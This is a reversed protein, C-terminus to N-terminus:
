WSFDNFKYLAFSQAYAGKLNVNTCLSCTSQVIPIYWCNENNIENLQQYLSYREGTDVSTRAKLLLEDVAPDNVNAINNNFGVSKSNFFGWVIADADAYTGGRWGVCIEYDLNNYVEEVFNAREMIQVEANIGIKRLQEQIVQASLSYENANICKITINMGTSGSDELLKKAKEVDYQNAKFGPDFGFYPSPIMSERTWGVGDFAGYLLEEKNIAYSVAQRVRVDKFTDSKANMSVYYLGASEASLVNVDPNERLRPLDAGSVGLLADVQGDELAIAASSTDMLIIFEIKKIAVEGGHWDEFAEGAIKSGSVWEVFKYAGTGMPKKSVNIGNASANEFYDKSVISYAPNCLIKLVAEYPYQLNLAVHTDDVVEAELMVSSTGANAPMTIARNLSYAVDEATLISGDHFKVDSKIKFLLTKGENTWEYSECLLPEAVSRDTASLRFMTEYFQACCATIFNDTSAGPELSPPESTMAFLMTDKDVTAGSGGTVTSTDDGTIVAEGSVGKDGSDSDGGGCATMSLVVVLLLCLGSIWRKKLM